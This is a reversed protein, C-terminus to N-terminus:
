HLLVSRTAGITPVNELVKRGESILLSARIKDTVDCKSNPSVNPPYHPGPNSKWASNQTERNLPILLVGLVDAETVRTRLVYNKVRLM